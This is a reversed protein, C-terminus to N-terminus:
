FLTLNPHLHKAKQKRARRKAAREARAEERDKFKTCTPQGDTAIIWEKPYYEDDVNWAMTELLIRCSEGGMGNFKDHECRHCYAEQFLEGETGNSPCYKKGAHQKFQEAVQSPYIM